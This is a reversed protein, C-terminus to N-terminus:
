LIVPLCCGQYCYENDKCPITASCVQEGQDCSYGTGTEELKDKCLGPLAEIPKGPCLECLGCENRCDQSQVCRPCADPDDIVALSCTEVIRVTIRSKDEKTVECCGFCDCGNPTRPLCTDICQDTVTCDTPCESSAIASPSNGLLCDSHYQCGDDGHGSNNDFFCDQCINKGVESKGTAFSSEDDDFPGTCEPDFGDITSDNDDDIGNNCECLKNNCLITEATYADTNSTTNEPDDQSADNAPTQQGDGSDMTEVCADDSVLADADAEDSVLNTVSPDCGSTFSLVGILVTIPTIKFV